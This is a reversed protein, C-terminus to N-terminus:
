GPAGAIWVIGLISVIALSFSVVAISLSLMLTDPHESLISHVASIGTFLFLVGMWLLALAAFVKGWKKGCIIGIIGPLPFAISWGVCGIAVFTGGDPFYPATPSIAFWLFPSCTLLVLMGLVLQIRRPLVRLKSLVKM